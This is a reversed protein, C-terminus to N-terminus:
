DAEAAGAPQARLGYLAMGLALLGAVLLQLRQMGSHIEIEDPHLTATGSSDIEEIQYIYRSAGDVNADVVEYSAGFQPSGEAPILEENIRTGSASNSEDLPDQAPAETDSKIRRLLNYGVVDQESGTTWTVSVTGPRSAQWLLGISTLLLILALIRALPWNSM